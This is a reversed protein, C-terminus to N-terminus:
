PDTPFIPRRSASLPGRQAATMTASLSGGGNLSTAMYGGGSVSSIYDFRKLLDKEALAQLVGLCFTASRIGGGSLGIGSWPAPDAGGLRAARHLGIAPREQGTVDQESAAPADDRILGTMDCVDKAPGVEPLCRGRTKAPARM